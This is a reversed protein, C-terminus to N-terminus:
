IEEKVTQVLEETKAAQKKAKQAQKELKAAELAAIKATLASLSKQMETLKRQVNQRRIGWQGNTAGRKIIPTSSGIAHDASFMGASTLAVLSVSLLVKKM